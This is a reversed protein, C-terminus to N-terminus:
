MLPTITGCCMYIHIYIYIIRYDGFDQLLGEVARRRVIDVRLIARSSKM